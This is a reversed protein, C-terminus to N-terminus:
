NDKSTLQIWYLQVKKQHNVVDIIYMFTFTKWYFRSKTITKSDDYNHMCTWTFTDLAFTKNLFTASKLEVPSSIDDRQTGQGGDDDDDM